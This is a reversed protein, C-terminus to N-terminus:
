WSAFVNVLVVQGRYDSLKHTKGDLGPLEAVMAPSDSALSVAPNEVGAKATTGVDPHWFLAAGLAIAALIPLIFRM